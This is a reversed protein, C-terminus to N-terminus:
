PHGWVRIQEQRQREAKASEYRMFGILLLVLLGWVALVNRVARYILKVFEMRYDYTEPKHMDLLTQPVCSRYWIARPSNNQANHEKGCTAYEQLLPM